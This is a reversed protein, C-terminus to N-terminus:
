LKQITRRFYRVPESSLNVDNVSVAVDILVSGDQQPTTVPTYLLTPRGALTCADDAVATTPDDYYIYRSTIDITYITDQLFSIDLDTCPPNQAIRLLQYETASKALLIAQEHLYIDATKKTTKATLSLSLAMITAIVVIVALAMMMAFGRKHSTRNLLYNKRQM